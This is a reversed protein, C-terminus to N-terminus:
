RMWQIPPWGGGSTCCAGFWTCRRAGHVTLMRWPAVGIVTVPWSVQTGPGLGSGQNSRASTSAAAAM